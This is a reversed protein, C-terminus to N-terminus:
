NLSDACSPKLCAPRKHEQVCLRSRGEGARPCIGGAVRSVLHGQRHHGSVGKNSVLTLVATM